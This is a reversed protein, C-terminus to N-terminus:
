NFVKFKHLIKVIVDSLKEGDVRYDFNENLYQVLTIVRPAAYYITFIHMIGTTLDNLQIRTIDTMPSDNYRFNFPVSTHVHVVFHHNYAICEAKSENRRSFLSDITQKLQLDGSFVHEKAIRLARLARESNEDEFVSM